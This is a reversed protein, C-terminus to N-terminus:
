KNEVRIRFSLIVVIIALGLGFWRAFNDEGLAAAIALAVAGFGGVILLPTIGTIRNRM